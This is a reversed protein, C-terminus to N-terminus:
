ASQWDAGNFSVEIAGDAHRRVGFLVGHPTIDGVQPISSTIDASVPTADVAPSPADVVLSPASAANSTVDNEM